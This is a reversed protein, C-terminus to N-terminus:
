SIFGRGVLKSSMEVAKNKGEIPKTTKKKWFFFCFANNQKASSWLEALEGRLPAVPTQPRAGLFPVLQAELYINLPLLPLLWSSTEVAKNKDEIPKTTKKKKWFFFCFANNQKASSWLVALEGRLPAVPTQPSAGLFPVLQAELYIDLHFLSSLWYFTVIPLFKM